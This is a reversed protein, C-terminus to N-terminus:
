IAKQVKGIAACKEKASLTKSHKETSLCDFKASYRNKSGRLRRAM